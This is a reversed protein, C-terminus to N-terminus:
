SLTARLRPLVKEAMYRVRAWGQELPEGPFRAWFHIDRIQPWEALLHSLEDVAQDADWLEYLGGEIAAEGDAFLPTEDPPGFAGWAIYTNAQNM